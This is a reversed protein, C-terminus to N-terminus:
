PLADRRGESFEAALYALGCVAAGYILMSSLGGTFEYAAHGSFAFHLIAHVLLFAAVAIRARRRVRRDLSAVLAVVIAFLPIHAIVFATEGVSESLSRLVPLVRWEHNAMADLEHTFLLGMGLYFATDKVHDAPTRRGPERARLESAAPARM